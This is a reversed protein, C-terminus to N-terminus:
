FMRLNRSYFTKYCQGMQRIFTISCLRPQLLWRTVFNESSMDDINVNHKKDVLHTNNFCVYLQEWEWFYYSLFKMLSKRLNSSFVNLINQSCWNGLFTFKSFLKNKSLKTFINGTALRNVTKEVCHVSGSAYGSDFGLCFTSLTM